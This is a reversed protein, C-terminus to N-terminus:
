HWWGHRGGDWAASVGCVARYDRAAIAADYVDVLLKMGGISALEDAFDRLAERAKTWEPSPEPFDTIKFLHAAIPEADGDHQPRPRAARLNSALACLRVVAADMNFARTAPQTPQSSM